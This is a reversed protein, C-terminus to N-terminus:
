AASHCAPSCLLIKLRAVARGLVGGEWFVGGAGEGEACMCANNSLARLREYVLACQAGVTAGCVGCASARATNDALVGIDQSPVRMFGM